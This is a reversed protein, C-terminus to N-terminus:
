CGTPRGPTADRAALLKSARRLDEDPTPNEVPGPPHHHPTRNQSGRSRMKCPSVRSTVSSPRSTHDRRLRGSATFRRAPDIPGSPTGGVAHRPPPPLTWNPEAPIAKLRRDAGGLSGAGSRPFGPRCRSSRRRGPNRRCANWRAAALWVLAGGRCVYLLRACIRWGRKLKSSTETMAACECRLSGAATKLVAAITQDRRAPVHPGAHGGVRAGSTRQHSIGSSRSEKECGGKPGGRPPNGLRGSDRM